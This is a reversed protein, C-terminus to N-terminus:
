LRKYPARIGGELEMYKAAFYLRLPIKLFWGLLPIRFPFEFVAELIGACGGRAEKEESKKEFATHLGFAIAAAWGLSSQTLRKQKM